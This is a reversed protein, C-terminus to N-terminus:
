LKKALSKDKEPKPKPWRDRVDDEAVVVWGPLTVGVAARWKIHGQDM